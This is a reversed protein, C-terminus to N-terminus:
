RLPYASWLEAEHYTASLDYFDDYIIDRPYIANGPHKLPDMLGATTAGAVALEACLYSGRNCYTAGFLFRRLPGRCRFPTGQLLLRGLAYRKMDQALAFETLRRSQEASIPVKVRRLHIAGEFGQLRPTLHLVRCHPTDNPGAEVIACEGDPKRFVLGVHYPGDSGALRYLAIWHPKYDNFFVLDGPQPEYPVTRPMTRGGPTTLHQVLYSRPEDQACATPLWTVLGLLVAALRM